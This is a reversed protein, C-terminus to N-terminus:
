RRRWGEDHVRHSMPRTRRRSRRATPDQPAACCRSRRSRRWFWACGHEVRASQTAQTAVSAKIRGGEARRVAANRACAPRQCSQSKLGKPSVGEAGAGRRSAAGGAALPAPSTGCAWRASRARACTSEGHPPGGGDAGRTTSRGRRQGRGPRRTASGVLLGFRTNARKLLGVDRAELAAVLPQRRHRRVNRGRRRADSGVSAAAGGGGTRRTRQKLPANDVRCGQAFAAAAASLQEVIAVSGAVSSWRTPPPSARTRAIPVAVEVLPACSRRRRWGSAADGERHRLIASVCSM